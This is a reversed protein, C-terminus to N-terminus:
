EMMVWIIAEIIAVQLYDNGLLKLDGFLVYDNYQGKEWEERGAWSWSRM